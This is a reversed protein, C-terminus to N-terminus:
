CGGRVFVPWGLMRVPQMGNNIYDLQQQLEEALEVLFTVDDMTACGPHDKLRELRQSRLCQQKVSLKIQM